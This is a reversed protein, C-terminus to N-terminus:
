GGATPLGVGVEPPSEGSAPPSSPSAARKPGHVPSICNAARFEALSIGSVPRFPYSAGPNIAHFAIQCAPHNARLRSITQLAEGYSSVLESFRTLEAKRVKDELLVDMRYRLFRHNEQELYDRALWRIFRERRWLWYKRTFFKKM